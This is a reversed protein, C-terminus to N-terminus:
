RSAALAVDRHHAHADIPSPTYVRNYSGLERIRAVLVEIPLSFPAIAALDLMVAQKGGLV